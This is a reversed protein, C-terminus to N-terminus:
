NMGKSNLYLLLKDVQHSSQNFDLLSLKQHFLILKINLHYLTKLLKQLFLELLPLQGPQAPFINPGLNLPEAGGVSQTGFQMDM